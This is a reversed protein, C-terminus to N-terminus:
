SQGRRLPRPAVRLGTSLDFFKLDQEGIRFEPTQGAQVPAHVTYPLNVILKEAPAYDPLTGYLLRDAGLNEVRDVRFRLTM